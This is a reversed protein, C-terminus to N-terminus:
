RGEEEVRVPVSGDRVRLEFRLGPTLEERRRLIRGEATVPLAFGREFAALPSLAHLRQGLAHVRERRRAVLRDASRRLTTALAEVERRAEAARARLAGAFRGELKVLDRAIAAGDPVAAEAAASPTPARVDAVLDAITVDTEHGVASIVPIPSAAIARAVLEDNFAWLDEVSGGGRGVVLVDAVGSRGILRIAEAIERASGEGQVRCGCLIVRTWPARRRVVTV